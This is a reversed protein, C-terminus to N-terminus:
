LRLWKKDLVLDCTQQAQCAIKFIQKCKPQMSIQLYRFIISYCEGILLYISQREDVPYSRFAKAIDLQIFMINRIIQKM